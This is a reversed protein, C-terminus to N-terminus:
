HVTPHVKPDVLRQLLHFNAASRDTTLTRLLGMSTLSTRVRSLLQEEIIVLLLAIWM